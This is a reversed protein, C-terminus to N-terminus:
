LRTGRGERDLLPAGLLATEEAEPTAEQDLLPAGRLAAQEAEAVATLGKGRIIRVTDPVAMRVKQHESSLAAFNDVVVM